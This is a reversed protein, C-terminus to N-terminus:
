ATKEAARGKSPVPATTETVPLQKLLREVTHSPQAGRGQWYALRERNVILASPPASPDYTGIKEIFRGGRPCRQDAVVLRYVPSKKAGARSLRIHVAM